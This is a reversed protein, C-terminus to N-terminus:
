IHILSLMLVGSAGEAQEIQPPPQLQLQGLPLEPEDLRGRRLTSQGSARATSGAASFVPTLGSPWPTAAPQPPKDTTTM